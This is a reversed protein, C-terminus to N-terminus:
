TSSYTLPLLKGRFYPPSHVKSAHFISLFIYWCLTILWEFKTSGFLRNFPYPPINTNRLITTFLTMKIMIKRFKHINLFCIIKIFPNSTKKSIIDIRCGKISFILSYINYYNNIITYNNTITDNQGLKLKGRSAHDMGISLICIDNFNSPPGDLSNGFCTTYKM